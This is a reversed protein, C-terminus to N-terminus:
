KRKKAEITQRLTENVLKTGKTGTQGKQSIVSGAGAFQDKSVKAKNKFVRLRDGKEHGAIKAKSNIIRTGKSAQRPLAGFGGPVAQGGYDEQPHMDVEGGRYRRAPKIQGFM